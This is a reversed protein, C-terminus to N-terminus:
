HVAAGGDMLAQRSKAIAKNHTAELEVAQNELSLKASIRVNELKLAFAANQAKLQARLSQQEAELFSQMAENAQIRLHEVVDRVAKEVSDWAEADMNDRTPVLEQLQDDMVMDAAQHMARKADELRETGGTSDVEQGVKLPQTNRRRLERNGM